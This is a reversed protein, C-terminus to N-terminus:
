IKNRLVWARAAELKASEGYVERAKDICANMGYATIGVNERLLQRMDEVTFMDNSCIQDLLWGFAEFSNPYRNLIQMQYFSLKLHVLTGIYNNRSKRPFKLLLRFMHDELENGDVYWLLESLMMRLKNNWKAKKILACLTDPLITSALDDFSYCNDVYRRFEVNLFSRDNLLHKVYDDANM